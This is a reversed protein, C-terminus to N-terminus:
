RDSICVHFEGEKELLTKLAKAYKIQRKADKKSISLLRALNMNDILDAIKIQTAVSSSSIRAIYDEYTEEKGRTLMDVYNAVLIGFHQRILELSADTDEVTDHLYAVAQAVPDNSIRSAVRKVHEIYPKGGKDLQGAHKREAFEYAFQPLKEIDVVTNM